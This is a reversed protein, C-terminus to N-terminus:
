GILSRAHSSDNVPAAGRCALLWSGVLGLTVWWGGASLLLWLVVIIPRHRRDGAWLLALAPLALVAHHEWSISAILLPLLMLAALTQRLPLREVWWLTALALTIIVMWHLPVGSPGLWFDIIGVLSVAHMSTWRQQLAFLLGVAWTEINAFPLTVAVCAACTILGAALARWRGARLLPYLALAPMIKLLAALALVSGGRWDRGALMHQASWLVLVAVLLNIQGLYITQWTPPFALVAWAALRWGIERRLLGILVLATAAALGVCVYSATLFDLANTPILAAALLPPYVYVAVPVPLTIVKWTTAAYPSLGQGVGRAAAVYSRADFGIPSWTLRERMHSVRFMGWAAALVILALYWSPSLTPLAPAGAPRPTSSSHSDTAGEGESM